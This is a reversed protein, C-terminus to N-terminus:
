ATPLALTVGFQGACAHMWGVVERHLPIGTRTRRDRTEEELQGAVLVREQGPAPPTAKLLGLLEDMSQKFSGVETLAGIDIAAVMHNAFGHPLRAQLPAGALVTSVIEVITALGYGKYSGQDPTGGLPLMRFEDPVEVPELIPEGKATAISGGPLKTGLRQALRIKNMAITATAADFVFPPERDAPVAVAIPNTGLRPERGFTPVVRPGVATVCVGIMDHPLAMMATYAAMGLHRGHGVTVMGVGTASAKGIAVEMARPALVVGMGGDADIAAVSPADRVVRWAPRANLHGSRLGEVYVRLLNSVGHSDVGRLDATVLVDAALAADVAPLGAAELLAATAASLGDATVVVADREAVSFAESAM